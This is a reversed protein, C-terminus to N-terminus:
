TLPVPSEVGNATEPVRTAGWRGRLMGPGAAATCVLAAIGIVAYSIRPTTAALLFGGLFYGIMPAANSVAGLAAFARGRHSDPVDHLNLVVHLNSAMTGNGIGGLVRLPTLLWLTPVLSTLALSLGMFTFGMLIQAKPSMKKNRGAVFAGVILGVMWFSEILGFVTESGGLTDRVFFVALVGDISVCTVVLGTAGLLTRLFDDRWVSYGKDADATVSSAAAAAGNRSHLRTEILLAGVAVVLFSAGDLVLAWQTGISGALYGGIAPGVLTGSMASTQSISSARAVNGAGVMQRPLGGLIPHTLALGASLPVTLGIAVFPHLWYAMILCLVAQGVATVLLIVRSDYRDCIWGTLPVLAIAPATSAILIAVIYFDSHGSAQLYLIIATAVAVDGAFSIARMASLIYVERWRPTTASSTTM